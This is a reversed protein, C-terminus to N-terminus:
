KKKKNSVVRDLYQLQTILLCVVWLVWSKKNSFTCKPPNTLFSDALNYKNLFDLEFIVSDSTITAVPFGAVGKLSCDTIVLHM